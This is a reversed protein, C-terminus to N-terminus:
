FSSFDINENVSVGSARLRHLPTQSLHLARENPRDQHQLRQREQASDGFDQGRDHFNSWREQYVVSVYQTLGSSNWGFLLLLKTNETLDILFSVM